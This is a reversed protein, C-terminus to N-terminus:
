KGERANEIFKVYGRRRKNARRFMEAFCVAGAYCSAVTFRPNAAEFLQLSVGVGLALVIVGANFNFLMLAVETRRQSKLKCLVDHM